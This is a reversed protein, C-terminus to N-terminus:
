LLEEINRASHLMRVIKVIRQKELVRYFILYKGVVIRRYSKEPRRMFRPYFHPWEQLPWLSKEVDRVLEVVYWPAQVGLYDRIEKYDKDAVKSWKVTFEPM